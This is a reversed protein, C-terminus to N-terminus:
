ASASGIAPLTGSSDTATSMTTPARAAEAADRSTNHRASSSSPAATNYEAPCATSDNRDCGRSVAASAASTCDASGTMVAAARMVEAINM